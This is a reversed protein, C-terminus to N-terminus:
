TQGQADWVGTGLERLNALIVKGIDGRPVKPLIEIYRPVMFPAMRDVAHQHIEEPSLRCGERPAVVLKIDEEGVDSPVGVATCEEVGPHRLMLSELESVSVNEGRRRIYSSGRGTFYLFGHEDLAGYDGTHLWGGRFAERTSVEDMEYGPTMVGPARARVIIEGIVGSSLREDRTDVIAIDFDDGAPGCSGPPTEMGPQPHTIPDAETMGYNERLAIGFRREFARHLDTPIGAFIGVRLSSDAEGEQEPLSWIFQLITAFGCLVSVSYERVQSWFCSRSFNPLLAVTGGTVIATMTMHLQGGLHYLPLWNHFVDDPTLGFADVIRSAGRCYQNHPVKVAKSRGTTGSTFLTCAQSNPALSVPVFNKRNHSEAFTLLGKVNKPPKAEVVIVAVLGTQDLDPLEDLARSETVLVHAASRHVMDNLLSGRHRRNLPIAIGGAFMTGLWAWLAEPCNHLYTAVRLRRTGINLSQLYGAFGEILALSDSYSWNQDEWLVFAKDASSRARAAFVEPITADDAGVLRRLSRTQHTFAM